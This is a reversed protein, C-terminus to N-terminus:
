HNGGVIHVVAYNMSGAVIVKVPACVAAVVEAHSVIGARNMDHGDGVVEPALSIVVQNTVQYLDLRNCHCGGAVPFTDSYVVTVRLAYLIGMRTRVVWILGVASFSGFSVWIDDRVAWGTGIGHESQM